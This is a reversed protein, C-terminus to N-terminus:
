DLVAYAIYPDWAIRELRLKRIGISELLGLAEGPWIPNDLDDFALIAGRPMRPVFAELAARTPEYLDCDIFLLSVVLHPHTQLFAPITEVMDGKILEVKDIHGLFRDADYERTLSLLEDYTNASLEGVAPTKRVNDDKEHISPFGQFTDFGYVRRTLNEPELIASLKAWSMVGFGRFVGCEVVSGKTPLALKFIEYLALFRKLHQRRVYKPFNELKIEVTDTNREFIDEIRAGVRQEEPTRLSKM